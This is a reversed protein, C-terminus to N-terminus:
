ASGRKKQLRGNLPSPSNNPKRIGLPRAAARLQRFSRENNISLGKNNISLGKNNISLGKYNM